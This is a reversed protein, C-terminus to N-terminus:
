DEDKTFINQVNQVQDRIFRNLEINVEERSKGEVLEKLESYSEPDGSDPNNMLRFLEVIDYDNVLVEPETDIIDNGVMNRVSVEFLNYSKGVEEVDVTTNGELTYNIITGNIQANYNGDSFNATKIVNPDTCNWEPSTGDGEIICRQTVYYGPATVIKTYERVFTSGDYYALLRYFTYGSEKAIDEYTTKGEEIQTTTPVYNIQRKLMANSTINEELDTTDVDNITSSLNVDKEDEINDVVFTFTDKGSLIDTNNNDVVDKVVAAAKLVRDAYYTKINTRNNEYADVNDTSLAGRKALIANEVTTVNSIILDPSKSPTLKRNKDFMDALQKSSMSSKLVIDGKKAEFVVVFDNNKIEDVVTDNFEVTWKGNIDAVATALTENNDARYVTVNAEPVKNDFVLGLFTVKTPNQAEKIEDLINGSDKLDGIFVLGFLAPDQQSAIEVDEAVKTVNFDGTSSNVEVNKIKERVTKVFELKNAVAGDSDAKLYIANVKQLVNTVNVEKVEKPDKFIEDKNLGFKEAVEEIESENADAVLTTLPTVVFNDDSDTQNTNLVLPFSQTVNTDGIKGGEVVIYSPKSVCGKLIYTGPSDKLEESTNCEYASVKAGTIVDDVVKVTYETYEVDTPISTFINAQTYNIDADTVSSNDGCGALIISATVALSLSLIKKM